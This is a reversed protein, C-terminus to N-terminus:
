VVVEKNRVMNRARLLDAETDVAFSCKAKCPVMHIRGGNWLIRLQELMEITEAPAINWALYEALFGARYAYIGVHRYYSGNLKSGKENLDQERNWPIPARSFYLAYNRWNMVVKTVNPNLLEEIEQIPTCVSSVKVNDHAELDEAVKRILDTSIFPEDGQLCVIIEEDEIGLAVVAEALRETGSQHDVSTMCVKAGFIKAADHIRKDDTAIVVDAAGSSIAREYVYQLMPKGHIDALVKGPLRTSNYRVPIIVRFEM